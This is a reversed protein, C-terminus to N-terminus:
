REFYLILLMTKLEKTSAVLTFFLKPYIKPLDFTRLAKM